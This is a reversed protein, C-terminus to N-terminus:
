RGDMKTLSKSFMGESIDIRIAIQCQQIHGLHLDDEKRREGYRNDEEPPVEKYSPKRQKFGRNECVTSKEFTEREQGGDIWLKQHSKPKSM